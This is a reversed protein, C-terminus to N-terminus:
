TEESTRALGRSLLWAAVAFVSPMSVSLIFLLQSGYPRNMTQSLVSSSWRVTDLVLLTAIRGAYQAKLSARCIWVILITLSLGPLAHLVVDPIPHTWSPMVSLEILALWLPTALLPKLTLLAAFYTLPSSSSHWLLYVGVILPLLLLPFTFPFLAM